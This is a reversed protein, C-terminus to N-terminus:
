RPIFRKYPKASKSALSGFVRKKRVQFVSVNICSDKWIMLESSLCIPQKFALWRMTASGILCWKM